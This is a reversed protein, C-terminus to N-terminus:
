KKVEKPRQHALWELYGSLTQGNNEARARLEFIAYESLTVSVKKKKNLFNYNENMKEGGKPIWPQETPDWPADPDGPWIIM